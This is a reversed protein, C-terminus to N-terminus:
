KNGKASGFYEWEGCICNETSIIIYMAIIKRWNEASYYAVNRTEPSQSAEQASRQGQQKGWGERLNEVRLTCLLELELRAQGQAVEAAALVDKSQLM